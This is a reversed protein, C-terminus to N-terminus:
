WMGQMPIVGMVMVKTGTAMDICLCSNHESMFISRLPINHKEIQKHAAHLRSM